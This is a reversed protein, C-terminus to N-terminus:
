SWYVYVKTYMPVHDFLWRARDFNRLGICGHSGGYYGDRAFFPSFHVAQGGSFFMAFPMWTRYLSSWHDRSKRSVRFSGERTLTGPLGFRADLTLRVQGDEVLRLLRTSKDICLTREHTCASPLKGVTGSLDALKQWTGEGVTGTPHMWFKAQFKKVAEITSSWMRDPKTNSSDIPYGLWDLREQLERVRWGRAGRKLPLKSHVVPKRVPTTVPPTTVPPTTVPPTTVPPIDTAPIDVPPPVPPPDEAPEAAASAAPPTVDDATAPAAGAVALAFVVAISTVVVSNRV